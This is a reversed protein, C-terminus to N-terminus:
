RIGEELSDGQGENGGASIMMVAAAAVTVIGYWKSNYWRQVIM